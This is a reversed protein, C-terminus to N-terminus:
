LPEGGVRVVPVATAQTEVQGAAVWAPQGRFDIRLWLGDSSRGLLPHEERGEAVALLLYRDGPGSRVDTGALLHAPVSGAPSEQLLAYASAVSGRAAGLALLLLALLCCALLKQSHHFQELPSLSM